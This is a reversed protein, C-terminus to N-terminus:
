RLVHAHYALVYTAYRRIKIIVTISKRGEFTSVEIEFCNNKGKVEMWEGYKINSIMWENSAFSRHKRIWTSPQPGIEVYGTYIRRVPQFGTM